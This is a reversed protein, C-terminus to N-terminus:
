VEKEIRGVIKCNGIRTANMTGEAHRDLFIRAMHSNFKECNFGNGSATLFICCDKQGIKCINKADDNSIHCSNNDSYKIEHVKENNDHNFSISKDDVEVIVQMGNLRQLTNPLYAGINSFGFDDPIDLIMLITEGGNETDRLFKMVYKSEEDANITLNNMGCTMSTKKGNLEEFLEFIQVRLDIEGDKTELNIPHWFSIFTLIGKITTM